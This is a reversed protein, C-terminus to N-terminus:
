SLTATADDEPKADFRPDAGSIADVDFQLAALRAYLGGEETLQEHSGSAVIRGRDMVVIRGVKLVTALRHAIVITTRDAMLREIAGQVLRESEADLASTAEDLLLVAPDRLIARAIAIRQRQGGSLRVGKEGLYSDFGDPLQDLFEAAAAAEAAARVEEDDAEPRGYRINEWGNAAFIVPDQPVLGMRARVEAPDADRLDVGDLMIRGSSPDYFRLLVQMVTTKGAGSPGVLAVKEGPEIELTFDVLAPADPRSPYHFTVDDFRVEGLAPSPLAVPRAPATIDSKTALLDILRESAGAARQLEGVVESIAGAAGAVVVAYFVFASLEGASISGEMVDHGGIWLITGVAGFVLVIVLATLAARVRVRRVAVTFAAEVREDFRARDIAEHCFAQITRVANLSEEVHAGVDAVRDQSTRSLRRVWRGILVIPAVVLPVVLVVFAMLKASTVALMVVGGILLLLNRLAIPATSGVLVQLLTTDTTIRSLVEGTRTLEFFGPSLGIVHGFVAQRIDGVVREGLWSVLYFRSYSAGALVVIVGLLAFLADDLLATDGSAFGEDVLRRLGLGMALVTAAAVSLAVLAGAVAPWYPRVFRYLHVLQDLNGARQPAEAARADQSQITRKM